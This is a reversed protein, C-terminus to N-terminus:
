RIFVEGLIKKTEEIEKYVDELTVDLTKIKEGNIEIESSRLSVQIWGIEFLFNETEESLLYDVFAQANKNNASGKIISVTNPVVLTGKDDQGQDPWIIKVSKGKNIAVLADDTDTLGFNLQGDVVLDRVTANGDVVRVKRNYLDKYFNTANETGLDSFIAAAHTATTGFIPYAIGIKSAEYKKDLVDAFRKPYDDYELLDTNVLICRARGGFATWYGEEDKYNSPIINAEESKYSTLVGKEKLLITQAFEGNWFVSAVPNEKEEILKNIMGTTKSAESDYAPLVKIGTKEEFDNFVQESYNRDVSTYVIVTNENRKCSVLLLNVM